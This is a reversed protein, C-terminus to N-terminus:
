AKLETRWGRIGVREEETLVIGFKERLADVREEESACVQEVRTGGMGDNRKIVENAMMLKGVVKEERRLFKVVLVTNTQFSAPSQSTWYSMMELDSELFEFEAFAYYSNWPLTPKNRYQYIWLKDRGDADRPQKKQEPIYDHALRVEQSGLNPTIVNKVLPLPSTAGDGGFSVDVM